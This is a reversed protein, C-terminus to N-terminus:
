SGWGRIKAWLLVAAIFLVAAIVILCIDGVSLSM